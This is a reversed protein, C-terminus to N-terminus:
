VELDGTTLGLDKLVKHLTGPPMDGPHMAIVTTRGNLRLKLHSGGGQTEVIDWGRKTALRNLRGLLDAAKM